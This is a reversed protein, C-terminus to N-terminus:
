NLEKVIKDRFKNFNTAALPKTLIDAIQESTPCYKLRIIRDKVLEHIFRFKVDIHKSRKNVIDNKILSIASQNDINLKIHVEECILEELLTKLYILEKCCEAAAVYEAETTSQVIIPQKRSCWSIPGKALFIIYGTTSRRTDIDGTFDADSYAQLLNVNENKGYKIGKNLNSNLYKLIHKVDNIKEKTSEEVSRSVYNVAFAIDPRKSSAYLLSGVMERYPYCKTKPITKISEGQQLPIKVPKANEKDSQYLIKKIYEKQSLILCDGETKIELGVFIKTNRSIKIKFESALEKLIKNIEEIDSGVLLGDDVYIGLIIENNKKKFLCQESSLSNFDKKILFNAFRINWRLPAQKLGYIAKKL